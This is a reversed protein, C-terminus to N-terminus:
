RDSDILGTKCYMAFHKGNKIFRYYSSSDNSNILLFSSARNQVVKAPDAPAITKGVGLRALVLAPNVGYEFLYLDGGSLFCDIYSSVVGHFSPQDHDSCKPCRSHHDDLGSGRRGQAFHIVHEDDLYIGHHAYISWSEHRWTYIHDGRKLQRKHIKNSFLRRQLIASYYYIIWALIWVGRPTESRLQLTESRMVVRLLWQINFHTMLLVIFLDILSQIPRFGLAASSLKEDVDPLTEVRDVKIVNPRAGIDSGFIYICYLVFCTAAVTAATLQQLSLFGTVISAWFVGATPCSRSFIINDIVVLGTKCYMAFDKGNKIFRYHSCSDNSNIKRFSSARDQVVEAPDDPAITTGGGFKALVLAPNVGYEFLYLNDGGSLFCDVCSSVVGHFSSRDHDSCKTCTRHHDDSRAGRRGQIFHIVREDYLYIGHDETNARTRTYIHDGHQLNEKQTENLFGKWIKKQLESM